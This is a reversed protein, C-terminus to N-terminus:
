LKIYILRYKGAPIDLALKSGSVEVAKGTVADVVKVAKGPLTVTVKPTTKSYNGALLLIENNSQLASIM